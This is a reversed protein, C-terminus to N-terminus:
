CWLNGRDDLQASTEYLAIAEASTFGRNYIRFDTIRGSFDSQDAGKITITYITNTTWGLIEVSTTDPTSGSCYVIHSQYYLTLNIQEAAEWENLSAYARNDGTIANTTGDGGATSDTNVYRIKTSEIVLEPVSSYTDITSDNMRLFFYYTQGEEANSDFQINFQFDTYFNEGLALVATENSQDIYKGNQWTYTPTEDFVAISDDTATGDAIDTDNIIKVVSSATSVQTATAPTNDTDYYLQWNNGATITATNFVQIRLQIPNGIFGGSINVGEGFFNIDDPDIEGDNYGFKYHCQTINSM